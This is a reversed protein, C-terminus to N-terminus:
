KKGKSAAKEIEAALTTCVTDTVEQKTAEWAPRIFPHEPVDGIHKGPGSYKGDRGKRSKGGQVERHGYEVWDAVHRTEKDPGVIAALIGNDDKKIRMVIDSKLAGDPLIGGSGVKVPARETIAAQVIVGGTRLAKRTAAEMQKESLDKLNALLEPLGSIIM